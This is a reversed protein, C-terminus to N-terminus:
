CGTRLHRVPHALWAAPLANSALELLARDAFRKMMRLQHHPPVAEELDVFALVSAQPNRRGRM